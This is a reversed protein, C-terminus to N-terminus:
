MEIINSAPTTTQVTASTNVTPCYFNYQDISYQYCQQYCSVTSGVILTFTSGSIVNTYTATCPAAFIACASRFNDEVIVPPVACLEGLTTVGLSSDIDLFGAYCPCARKSRRLISLDAANLYAENQVIQLARRYRLNRGSIVQNCSQRACGILLSIM